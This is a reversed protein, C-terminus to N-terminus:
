PLATLLTAPLTARIESPKNGLGSQLLKRDLTALRAGLRRAVAAYATDYLTLDHESALQAAQRFDETTPSIAPCIERLADPVDAVGEADVQARGHLLANGVEYLTLDPVSLAVTRERQGLLM